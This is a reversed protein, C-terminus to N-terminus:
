WNSRKELYKVSILSKYQQLVTELTRKSEIYAIDFDTIQTRPIMTLSLFDYDLKPKRQTKTLTINKTLNSFPKIEPEDQIKHQIVFNLLANLSDRDVKLNNKKLQPAELVDAFLKVLEIFALQYALNDVITDYNEKFSNIMEPAIEGTSDIGLKFLYCLKWIQANYFYTSTEVDQKIYEIARILNTTTYRIDFYLKNSVLQSVITEIKPNNTKLEKSFTDSSYYQQIIEWEEGETSINLDCFSLEILLTNYQDTLKDVDYNKPNKVELINQLSNVVINNRIQELEKIITDKTRNSM